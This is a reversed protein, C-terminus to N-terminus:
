KTRIWAILAILATLALTLLLSYDDLFRVTVDLLCIAKRLWLMLGQGANSLAFPQLWNHTLPDAIQQALRHYEGHAEAQAHCYMAVGCLVVVICQMVRHRLLGHWWAIAALVLVVGLCLLGYGFYSM